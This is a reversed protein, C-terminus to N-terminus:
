RNCRTTPKDLFIALLKLMGSADGAPDAVAAACCQQIGIGSVSPDYLLGAYLPHQSIESDIGLRCASLQDEAARPEGGPQV